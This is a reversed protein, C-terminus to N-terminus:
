EIVVKVSESLGGAKLKLIYVGPAPQQKLNLKNISNPQVSNIIERHIIKGNTTTLIAEVNSPSESAIRFNIGSRSPNPSVSILRSNSAFMKVTRIDSAHSRGDLDYQNIRYYSLGSVPSYDYAKYTHSESSTGSGNVTTIAKWKVQDTSRQIEFRDNNQESATKWELKVNNGDKTVNFATFSIPLVAATTLSPYTQGIDLNSATSGYHRFYFTTNTPTNATGKIAWEFETRNQDPLSYNKLVMSDVMIKGPVFPLAIGTLQATTPEDQVVYGSGRAMVFPKSGPITDINKWPGATSTAYQLTDLVGVAGGTNNYVEIRLRMVQSVSTMTVATMENAKWTASVETGDNNRWRWNRQTLFAFINSYTVLFVILFLIKKM